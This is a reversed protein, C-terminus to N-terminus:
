IQANRWNYGNIIKLLNEFNEITILRKLNYVTTFLNIETSVKLTGRLLIPIKGMLYKITGFPHEALTRRLKMKERGKPTNMKKKYSDRFEQNLYRHFIRGKKSGTCEDRMPCGNCEIGQYVDALSGRRKKNRQIPILRKGQKCIYEDKEKDYRFKIQDKEEQTKNQAVYIDIDEEKKGVEEILDLKNYGNDLVMEEPKEGLEDKISELMDDILNLDNEDTFVESDAIMKNEADVVIQVNYGPIKGDRSKMLHADIDSLSIYKRNETELIDKQYQLQEVQKQLAIIKDLYKQTDPEYDGDEIEELIDEQKDRDSLKLLYEEIKKDLNSLKSEIKEITLMDRNTYAKVKTGDVAVTKLKIYGSTKLFERFKKTIFKIDEGHEKRYNSITWHDPNLEGLLWKVEINRYTEIELKRSSRIGNFYGYMFLKLLIDEPYKPRGVETERTTIFREKNASVISNIIADIIRVPNDDRIQDDLSSFLQKQYRDSLQIYSM